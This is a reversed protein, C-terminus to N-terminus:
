ARQDSCFHLHFWGCLPPHWGRDLAIGQGPAVMFLLFPIFGYQSGGVEQRHLWKLPANGVSIGLSSGWWSPRCILMVVPIGWASEPTEQVQTQHPM